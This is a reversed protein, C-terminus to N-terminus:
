LVSVCLHCSFKRVSSFVAPDNCSCHIPVQTLVCSETANNNLEFVGECVYLDSMNFMELVSSFMSGYELVYIYSVTFSIM